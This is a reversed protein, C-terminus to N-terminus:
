SIYREAVKAIAPAAASSQQSRAAASISVSDQPDSAKTKAEAKPHATSSPQQLQTAPPIAHVPNTPM